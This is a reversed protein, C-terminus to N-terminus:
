GIRGLLIGLILGTLVYATAAIFVRDGERLFLVFTFAVRVLPVLTLAVLGITMIDRPDGRLADHFLRVWDERVHLVGGSQVMHFREAYYGPSHIATAILGIILITAALILVGRLVVPTWVRLIRNEEGLRGDPSTQGRNLNGIVRAM